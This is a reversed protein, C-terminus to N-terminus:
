RFLRFIEDEPDRATIKMGRVSLSNFHLAIPIQYMSSSSISFFSTCDLICNMRNQIYNVDRERERRPREHLEKKSMLKSLMKRADGERASILLFLLWNRGCKM